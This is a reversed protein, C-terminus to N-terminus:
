PIDSVEWKTKVREGFDPIQVNQIELFLFEDVPIHIDQPGLSLSFYTLASSTSVTDNWLASIHSGLNLLSLALMVPLSTRM